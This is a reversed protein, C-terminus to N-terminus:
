RLSWFPRTLRKAKLGLHIRPTGDRALLWLDYSEGASSAGASVRNSIVLLRRGDPSWVAKMDDAPGTAVAVRKAKPKAAMTYVDWNADAKGDQVRNSFSM